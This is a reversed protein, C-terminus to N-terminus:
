KNALIFKGNYSWILSHSRSTMEQTTEIIEELQFSESAYYLWAPQLIEHIGALMADRYWSNFQDQYMGKDFIKHSYVIDYNSEVKKCGMQIIDREVIKNLEPYKFKHRPNMDLGKINQFGKNQLAKLFEGNGSWVEFIKLSKDHFKELLQPINLESLNRELLNLCRIAHREDTCDEPNNNSYVNKYYM